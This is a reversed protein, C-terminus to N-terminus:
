HYTAQHRGRNGHVLREWRPGRGPTGRGDVIVVAFGQDAFWQSTLYVSQAAFVRQGAPGGYPDLLVPLPGDEPEEPKDTGALRDLDLIDGLKQCAARTAASSNRSHLGESV